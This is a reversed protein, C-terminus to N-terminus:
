HDENLLSRMYERRYQEFLARSDAHVIEYGGRCWKLAYEEESGELVDKPGLIIRLDPNYERIMRAALSELRELVSALDQLVATWSGGVLTTRDFVLRKLTKAFTSVFRVLAQEEAVLELELSCLKGWASNDAMERFLKSTAARDEGRRDLQLILKHFALDGFVLRLSELRETRRFFRIISDVVGGQLSLERSVTLDFSRLRTCAHEMLSLQELYPGRDHEEELFWEGADFGQTQSVQHPFEERGDWLRITCDPTWFAPGDVAFRITELRPLDERAWGLARLVYSLQLADLDWDLADDTFGALQMPDLRLDGWRTGWDDSLLWGSEHVFAELNVLKSVDLDFSELAEALKQQSSSAASGPVKIPKFVDRKRFSLCARINLMQAIDAQYEGYKRQKSESPLADWEAKATEDEFRLGNEWEEFGPFPRLGKRRRLVLTRVHKRLNDNSAICHLRELSQLKLEFRISGFAIPTGVTCFGRSLSRVRLLDSQELSQFIELLTEAPLGDLPM